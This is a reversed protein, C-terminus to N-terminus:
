ACQLDLVWVVAEWMTQEEALRETALRAVFDGSGVPTGLIKASHPNWVDFGLEAVRKPCEAARNWVRTKGDHFRMVAERSLRAGLLDFITRVRHLLCVVYVDDLIALSSLLPM